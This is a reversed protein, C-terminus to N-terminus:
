GHHKKIEAISAGIAKQIEQYTYVRSRQYMFLINLQQDQKKSLAVLDQKQLRFAERSMRKLNNRMVAKSFKKKPVAFAVRVPVKCGVQWSYYVKFPSLFFARGERILTTIEKSNKIREIASLTAREM